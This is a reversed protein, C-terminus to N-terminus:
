RRGGGDASAKKRRCASCYGYLEHRHYAIDFGLDGAIRDQLSELRASSFELIRGCGLCILHDHHESKIEFKTKGNAFQRESALNAQVLLKLTRFITSPDIERGMEQFHRHLEQVDYHGHLSLFERVIFQRQPTLRGGQERVFAEFRNSEVKM